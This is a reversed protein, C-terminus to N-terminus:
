VPSCVAMGKRKVGTLRAIPSWFWKMALARLFTWLFIWFVVIYFDDAGQPGHKLQDSLNSAFPGPSPSRSVSVPFLIWTPYTSSSPPFATSITHPNSLPYTNLIYHPLDTYLPGQGPM